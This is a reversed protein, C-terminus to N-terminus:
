SSSTFTSSTTLFANNLDLDLASKFVHAKHRGEPHELNLCYTIIKEIEVIAREGM